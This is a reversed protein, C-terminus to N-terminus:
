RHAAPLRVASLQELLAARAEPRGGFPIRLHPTRSHFHRGPLAPIGHDRALLERTEDEDADVAAWIFACGEPLESRLGAENAAAIARPRM